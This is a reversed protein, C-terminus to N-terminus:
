QPTPEQRPEFKINALVDVAIANITCDHRHTYEHLEVLNRDHLRCAGVLMQHPHARHERAGKNHFIERIIQERKEPKVLAAINANLGESGCVFCAVNEYGIGRSMFHFSMDTLGKLLNHNITL